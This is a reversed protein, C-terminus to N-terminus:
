LYYSTAFRAFFQNFTCGIKISFSTYPISSNKASIYWALSNIVGGMIGASNLETKKYLFQSRGDQYYSLFPYGVSNAGTGSGVLGYSTSGCTGAFAGCTTPYSLTSLQVPTNPCAVTPSAQSTIAVSQAAVNVVMTDTRACGTPHYNTTFFYTTTTTLNPTTTNLCTSCSLGTSPSWAYSLTGTTTGNANM